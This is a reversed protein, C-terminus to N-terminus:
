TSHATQARQSRSFESAVAQSLLCGSAAARRPGTQGAGRVPLAGIPVSGNGKGFDRAHSACYSGSPDRCTASETLSLGQLDVARSEFSDGGRDRCPDHLDRLGADAARVVEDGVGVGAGDEDGDASMMGDPAGALLGSGPGWDAHRRDSPYM